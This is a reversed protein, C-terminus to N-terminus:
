QIVESTVSLLNGTISLFRVSDYMEINGLRRDKPPLKAHVIVRIGLGSPSVESYSNLRLVYSLILPDIEGTEPHRCKDFDLGTFPDTASFVFGVGDFPSRNVTSLYACQCDELPSWTAPENVKAVNGNPQFLVKTWRGKFYYRWIV